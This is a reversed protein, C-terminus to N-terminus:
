TPSASEPDDGASEPTVQEETTGIPQDADDGDDGEDDVKPILVELTGNERVTAEAEDPDVESDEPLTVSGSLALGRGPFRMEYGDHFERFRDVNVTLTDDEFRVQVDDATTGAADFVALFADDSELLDAPLPKREQVHSAARGVGDLVARGILEGVERIM